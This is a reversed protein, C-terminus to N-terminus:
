IRVPRTWVSAGRLSGCIICIITWPDNKILLAEVEEDSLVGRDIENWEKSRVTAAAVRKCTEEDFGFKQIHKEWTYYTLVNGIDFVINKIM